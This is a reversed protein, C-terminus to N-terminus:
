SKWNEIVRVDNERKEDDMIPSDSAPHITRGEFITDIQELTLNKTEVYQLGNTLETNLPPM